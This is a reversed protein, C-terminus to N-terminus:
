SHPNLDWKEQFLEYRFVKKRKFEWFIIEIYKFIMTSGKKPDNIAPINPRNRPDKPEEINVVKETPM